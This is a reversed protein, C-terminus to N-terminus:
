GLRGDLTTMLRYPVPAPDTRGPLRGSGDSGGALIAEHGAGALSGLLDLALDQRRVGGERHRALPALPGLLLVRESRTELTVPVPDDVRLRETPQLVLRLDEQGGLTVVVPDAEGVRELHALDSSRGGSRKAQVLIEGLRDRETVVEAVRREPVEALLRECREQLPRETVVLLREADDVM